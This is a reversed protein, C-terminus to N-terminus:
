RQRNVLWIMKCMYAPFYNYFVFCISGSALGYLLQREFHCIPNFFFFFLIITSNYNPPTITYIHVIPESRVLSKLGFCLSQLDCHRTTAYLSLSKQSKTQLSHFIQTIKKNVTPNVPSFAGSLVWAWQRPKGKIIAYPSRHDQWTM